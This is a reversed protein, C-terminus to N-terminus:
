PVANAPLLTIINPALWVAFPPCPTSFLKNPALLTSSLPQSPYGSLAWSHWLLLLLLLSKGGRCPQQLYRALESSRLHIAIQHQASSRHLSCGFFTCFTCFHLLSSVAFFLLTLGGLLPCPPCRPEPGKERSVCKPIPNQYAGGTTVQLYLVCSWSMQKLTNM